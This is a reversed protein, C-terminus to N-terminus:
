PRAEAAKPGDIWTSGDRLRYTVTEAAEDADVQTGPVLDPTFLHAPCGARQEDLTLPKDFRACHWGGDVASSHLCTRCNLRPWVELGVAAGHCLGRAPCWGCAFAAKSAPDEHLKAPARDAHVIREAKAMLRLAFAADYRIREIHLEDSDKEVAVYLARDIGRLHMYGQMQAYHVPKAAAVGSKQLARFSRVSHTKAEFVHPKAPAEVVGSLVVGDLHGRVHGGVASVEFQEGTEPDVTDVVCGIAKLEAIIRAEERHGTDLLRLVRGAKAEPAHAWRFAYWLQRECEEGLVSLGLYPREHREATAEHHAYIARVTPSVIVPLEAM